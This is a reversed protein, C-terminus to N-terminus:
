RWPAPEIGAVEQHGKEVSEERYSTSYCEFMDARNIPLLNLCQTTWQWKCVHTVEKTIPIISGRQVLHLTNPFIPSRWFM